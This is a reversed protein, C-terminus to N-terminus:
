DHPEKCQPLTSHADTLQRQDFKRAATTLFRQAEEATAIAVVRVAELDKM